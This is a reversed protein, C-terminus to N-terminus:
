KDRCLSSLTEHVDGEQLISVKNSLNRRVFNEVSLINRRVFNEVGIRFKLSDKDSLTHLRSYMHYLLLYKQFFSNKKAIGYNHRFKIIGRLLYIVHDFINNDLTHHFCALILSKQTRTNTQQLLHYLVFILTKHAFVITDIVSYTVSILSAFKRNHM